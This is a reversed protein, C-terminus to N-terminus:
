LKESLNPHFISHRCGTSDVYYHVAPSSHHPFSQQLLAAGAEMKMKYASMLGISKGVDDDNVGWCTIYDPADVPFGRHMGLHGRKAAAQIVSRTELNM